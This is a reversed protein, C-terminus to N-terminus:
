EGGKQVYSAVFEAANEALVADIEDMLDDLDALNERAAEANESQIVTTDENSEIKKRDRRDQDKIRESM